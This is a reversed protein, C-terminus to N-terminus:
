TFLIFNDGLKQRLRDTPVGIVILEQGTAHGSRGLVNYAAVSVEELHRGVPFDGEQPRAVENIPYQSGLGGLM